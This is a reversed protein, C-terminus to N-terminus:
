QSRLKTPGFFGIIRELKSGDASLFTLDIGETLVNGSAEIAGATEEGRANVAIYEFKAM